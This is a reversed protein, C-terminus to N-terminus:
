SCNQTRGLPRTKNIKNVLVNNILHRDAKLAHGFWELRKKRIFSRIDARNYLSKINKNNIKEYAQIAPKFILGYITRIVKREFTILEETIM